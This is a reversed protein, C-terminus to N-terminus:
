ILTIVGAALIGVFLTDNAYNILPDMYDFLGSDCM